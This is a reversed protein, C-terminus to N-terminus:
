SSKAKDFSVRSQKAQVDLSLVDKLVKIQGQLYPVEEPKARELYERVEDRKLRAWMRLAEMAQPQSVVPLLAALVNRDRIM